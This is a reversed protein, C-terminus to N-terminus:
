MGPQRQQALNRGLMQMAERQADKKQAVNMGLASANDAEQEEGEPSDFEADVPKQQARREEGMVMQREAQRQGTRSYGRTGAPGADSAPQSNGFGALGTTKMRDPRMRKAARGLEGPRPMKLIQWAIGEPTM